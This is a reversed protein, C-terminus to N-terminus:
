AAKGTEGSWANLKLLNQGLYKLHFIIVCQNELTEM